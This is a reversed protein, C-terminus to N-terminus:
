QLQKIFFCWVADLYADRAERSKPWDVGSLEKLLPTGVLSYLFCEAHFEPDGPRCLGVAQAERIAQVCPGGFHRRWNDSAACALEPFIPAEALITRCLQVFAPDSVMELAARGINKLEDLPDAGTHRPSVALADVRRRIVERFLVAKNPFRRYLTQKGVRARMAVMAMSTVSYGEELFLMDAVAVIHDALSAAREKPPRGAKIESPEM